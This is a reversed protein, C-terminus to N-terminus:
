REVFRGGSIEALKRMFDAGGDKAGRGAPGEESPDTGVWITHIVVRRTRLRSGIEALIKGTEVITGSNPEGDTLLFITDVGDDFSQAPNKPDMGLGLALALSDYVNTSPALELAEVLRTAEAKGEPTAKWLGKGLLRPNLAFAVVAFRADTPLGRIARRLEHKAVDLKTPEAPLGRGADQPSGGTGAGTAVAGGGSPSGGKPPRAKEAMSKSVDIVFALRKSTTPIGYFSASTAHGEVMGSPASPAPSEPTEPEAPKGPAPTPPARFREKNSAWWARWLDADAGLAQGTIAALVEALDGRLRGPEKALAEILPEIAAPNRLDRLASAAAARVTWGEDALAATFLPLDTAEKRRGLSEIAATRVLGAEDKALSRLAEGAGPDPVPTLALALNARPVADPETTAAKVLRAAATPARVKGLAAVAERKLSSIAHLTRRIETLEARFARAQKVDNAFDKTVPGEQNKEIDASVQAYLKEVQEFRKLLADTRPDPARLVRVLVDVAEPWDAEGLRRVADLRKVPDTGELDPQVRAKLAAWEESSGVKDAAAGGAALLLAAGAALFSGRM